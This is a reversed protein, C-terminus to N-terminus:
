LYKKRDVAHRTVYTQLAYNFAYGAVAASVPVITLYQDRYTMPKISM